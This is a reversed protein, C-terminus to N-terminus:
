EWLDEASAALGPFLQPTFEKPATTVAVVAYAGEVLQLETISRVEPDILWYWPVGCRAYINRKDRLDRNSTSPSLAEVLLDPTGKIHKRTIISRRANSVFIIDPEVVNHEDLLVDFPAIYVKGLKYRRV